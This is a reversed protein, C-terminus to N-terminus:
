EDNQSNTRANRCLRDLFKNVQKILANETIYEYEELLEDAIESYTKGLRYHADLTYKLREDRVSEIIDDVYTNDAIMCDNEIERDKILVELRLKDEKAKDKLRDAIDVATDGTRDSVGGQGSPMGSYNTTNISCEYIYSFPLLEVRKKFNEIDRTNKAIEIINDQYMEFMVRIREKM